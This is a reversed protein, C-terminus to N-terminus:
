AAEYVVERSAEVTRALYPNIIKGPAVLDVKRGLLSELDEKLGFYSRLASADPPLAFQVLFDFDSTAPDFADSTGSGFLELRCVHFRRCLEEIQPLNALVTPHLM